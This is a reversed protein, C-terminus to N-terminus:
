LAWYRFRRQRGDRDPVVPVLLEVRAPAILLLGFRQQERVHSAAIRVLKGPRAVKTELM